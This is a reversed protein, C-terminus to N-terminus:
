DEAALRVQLEQWRAAALEGGLDADGRYARLPIRRCPVRFTTSGALPLPTLRVTGAGDASGRLGSLALEGAWGACVALSLTDAIGLLRYDAALDRSGARLERRLRRERADLRRLFPRWVAEHRRDRHLERAHRVILLAAYPCRTLFRMTGREWIEIRQERPMSVFDVPRGAVDCRPAADAERWGNDHERGALIVDGRRPSDVLGDARWLSLIEGALHAHDPQTVLRYAGAELAVIM